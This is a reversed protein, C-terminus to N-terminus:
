RVRSKAADKGHASVKISQGVSFREAAKSAHEDAQRFTYSYQGNHWQGDAPSKYEYSVKARVGIDGKAHGFKEAVAPAFECDMYALKNTDKEVVRKKRGEIYCETKVSTVEGTTEVFHNERKAFAVAVLGALVTPVVLKMAM